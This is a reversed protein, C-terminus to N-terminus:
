VRLAFLPGFFVLVQKPWRPESTIGFLLASLLKELIANEFIITVTIDNLTQAVRSDVLFANYRRADAWILGTLTAIWLIILIITSLIPVYYFDGNVLLIPRHLELLLWWFYRRHCFHDFVTALVEKVQWSWQKLLSSWCLIYIFCLLCFCALVHM